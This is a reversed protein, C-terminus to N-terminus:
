FRRRWPTAMISGAIIFALKPRDVFWTLAATYRTRVRIYAEDFRNHFREFASKAQSLAAVGTEANVEHQEGKLLYNVMVPVLTRSLLYSAMMAFVVALAM